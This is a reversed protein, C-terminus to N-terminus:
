SYYIDQNFENESKAVILSTAADGMVNLSTLVMEVPKNLALILSYTLLATENTYGMSNVVTFLLVSGAAPVAPTGAAAMISLLSMIMVDTLSVDYGAMTAIFITGIVHMISTGNMNITMGLPLVFNAVENSIGLEEVNTKVNLPFAPSSAATSFAILAVKVMKRLFILPNLRTLALVILAYGLTLYILLVLITLGMYTLVPQIQNIGYLAFARVILSFIAIPGLRNILFNICLQIIKNAQEIFQYVVQAEEKLIGLCIGIVVALFVVALVGSNSSFASIMNEPVFAIITSLPNASNVRVISDTKGGALNAAQHFLHINRAFLASFGALACGICYMFLFGGLAKYAIRGLKKLDTISSMALVLSTFVLPIITLKLGNLFVTGIIYFIGIGKAGEKSVDQFFISDILKWQEEKGNAMFSEHLFMFAAGVLFALGLSIMMKKIISNKQGTM